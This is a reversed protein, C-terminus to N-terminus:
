NGITIAMGEGVAFGHDKDYFDLDYLKGQTKYLIEWTDGGNDTMKIISENNSHLLLWGHNQDIFDIAYINENGSALYISSFSNFEDTTLLIKDRYALWIYEKGYSKADIIKGEGQNFPIEGSLVESGNIENYYVSNSAIYYAKEKSPYVTRMIETNNKVNSFYWSGGGNSSVALYSNNICVAIHEDDINDINKFTLDVYFIELLEKQIKFSQCANDTFLIKKDTIIWGTNEDIFLMDNIPTDLYNLKWDDGQNNTLLMIGQSDSSWAKDIGIAIVKNLIAKDNNNNGNKIEKKIIKIEKEKEIYYSDECAFLLATFLLLLIKLKKSLTIYDM